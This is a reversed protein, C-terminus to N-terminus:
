KFFGNLYTVMIQILLLYWGSGLYIQGYERNLGKSKPDVAFVVEKGIVKQRLFEKSEWAYPEDQTEPASHLKPYKNICQHM